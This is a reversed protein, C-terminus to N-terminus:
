MMIGIMYLSYHSLNSIQWWTLSFRRNPDFATFIYTHYNFLRFNQSTGWGKSWTSLSLRTPKIFILFLYVVPPYLVFYLIYYTVLLTCTPSDNLGRESMLINAMKTFQVPDFAAKASYYRDVVIVSQFLIGTFVILTFRMDYRGAVLIWGFNCTRVRCYRVFFIDFFNISLFGWTSTSRGYVKIYTYMGKKRYKISECRRL